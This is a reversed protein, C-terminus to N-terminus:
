SEKPQAAGTRAFFQALERAVAAPSEAPALHAADPLEVATGHQVGAAIEEAKALPTVTDHAGAIALTPVRVEPLRDRLDFGALAECCRAYSFRDADSLSHLLTSATDPHAAIFGPAFWRLASGEVMVPTGQARVTAAREHWGEPTGLQAGSCLIALGDLLEGHHVGLALGVAGGLSVGAYHFTRPGGLSEVLAVVGAALEEVTFPEDTPASRGHGPLDFAVVDFDEALRRACEAWLVSSTGLSSGVVLLPRGSGPGPSPPGPTLRVATLQPVTM